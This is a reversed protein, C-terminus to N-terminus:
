NARKPEDARDPHLQDIQRIYRPNEPSPEVEPATAQRPDPPLLEPKPEEDLSPNKVPDM